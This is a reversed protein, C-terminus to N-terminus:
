RDRLPLLSCIQKLIDEPLDELSPSASPAALAALRRRPKGGWLRRWCLKLLRWYVDLLMGVHLLSDSQQLAGPDGGVTCPGPLSTGISAFTAPRNHRGLLLQKSGPYVQDHM